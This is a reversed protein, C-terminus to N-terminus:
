PGAGFGSNTPQRAVLTPPTSGPESWRTELSCQADFSRMPDGLFEGSGGWGGGDGARLELSLTLFLTSVTDAAIASRQTSSQRRCQGPWHWEIVKRRRISRVKRLPAEEKDSAFCTSSLCSRAVLPRVTTPYWASPFPRRPAGCRCLKHVLGRVSGSPRAPNLHLARRRRCLLNTINLLRASASSGLDASQRRSPIPECARLPAGGSNRSGPM